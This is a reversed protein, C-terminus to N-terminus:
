WHSKLRSWLNSFELIEKMNNWVDIFTGTYSGRSTETSSGNRTHRRCSFFVSNSGWHLLEQVALDLQQYGNSKNILIGCDRDERTTCSQTETASGELVASDQNSEIGSARAKEGVMDRQGSGFETSKTSIFILPLKYINRVEYERLEKTSLIAYM